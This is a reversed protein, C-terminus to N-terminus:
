EPHLRATVIFFKHQFNASLAKHRNSILMKFGSKGFPGTELMPVDRCQKLVLDLSVRIERDPDISRGRMKFQVLLTPKSRYGSLVVVAVGNYYCRGLHNQACACDL